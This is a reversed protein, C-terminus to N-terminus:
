WIIIIHTFQRNKRPKGSSHLSGEINGVFCHRQQHPNYWLCFPGIGLLYENARLLPNCQIVIKGSYTHLWCTSLQFSFSNSPLSIITIVVKMTVTKVNVTFLLFNFAVRHEQYNCSLTKQKNIIITIKLDLMYINISNCNFTCMKNENLGDIPFVFHFSFFFVPEFM